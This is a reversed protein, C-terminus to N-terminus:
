RRREEQARYIISRRRDEQARYVLVAALFTQELLGADVIEHYRYTGDGRLQVVATLTVPETPHEANWALRYAALQYGAAILDPETGSKWDLIARRGNLWGVRDAHGIYGWAENTVLIESAIPVHGSEHLFKEYASLFPATTPTVDSEELVGYAHAHIARHVAQGRELAAALVVPSVRSLDVGLGTRDLIRTVRPM